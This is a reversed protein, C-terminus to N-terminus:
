GGTIGLRALNDHAPHLVGAPGAAFATLLNDTIIRVIRHTPGRVASCIPAVACSWAITGADFVGAGSPAAYYTTDAFGPLGKPCDTPSHLLVQIPRPTPYNLQVADTETGILGPLHDGAHVNTGTFLWRIPDVVIGPEHPTYPLCAYQEGLLTSEPRADPVAPWNATVAADDHRYLPDEQAVKYNVILRDPGLHTRGLRIRRFMANAGLFALNVGANRAATLAARMQPSWYEDHGLSVVARAGALVNPITQLDIDTVYDLPLRLREAEALVGLQGRVFGGAGNETAYPRDFSVARSRTGFSGDGGQYLDCCGWTDYAQWTTVPSIIVVRGRASGARVTLPVFSRYGSSSDLRFLYDGPAWGRTSVTLSPHWFTEVTHTGSPTIVPRPQPATRVTQSRWVERAEAGRYWGMRYAQVRFSPAVASVYLRVSQGPLVSIPDAYGAIGGAQRPSIRWPSGPLEASVTRVTAAAPDSPAATRRVGYSVPDAVAPPRGVAPVAVGPERALPTTCAALLLVPAAAALSRFM